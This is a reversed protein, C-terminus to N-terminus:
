DTGPVTPDTPDKKDRSTKTEGHGNEPFTRLHLDQQPFPIEVGAERFRRDIEFRIETGVVLMHDIDTWVRLVFNLSSDAFELFHVDPHPYKLVHPNADAVELLIKRVGQIDSGYAVGMNIKVRLRQDRFSWNTVLNSIFDSNPIILAANDYTKVVTSRFNIKKVEGWVGNIEIADGV